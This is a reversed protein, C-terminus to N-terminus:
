HCDRGQDDHYYVFMFLKFRHDSDKGLAPFLPGNLSFCLLPVSCRHQEKNLILPRSSLFPFHCAWNGQKSWASCDPLGPYQVQAIRIHELGTAREGSHINLDGPATESHVKGPASRQYESESTPPQPKTIPANCSSGLHNQFTTRNPVWSRTVKHYRDKM